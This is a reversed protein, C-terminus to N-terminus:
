TQGLQTRISLCLCVCPFAILLLHIEWSQSLLWFQDMSQTKHTSTIKFMNYQFRVSTKYTGIIHIHIMCTSATVYASHYYYM